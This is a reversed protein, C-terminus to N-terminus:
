RWQFAPSGVLLALGQRASEAARVAERVAIADPPLMHAM